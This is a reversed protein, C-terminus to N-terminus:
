LLMQGRQTFTYKSTDFFQLYFKGHVDVYKVNTCLNESFVLFFQAVTFAIVRNRVLYKKTKKVPAV